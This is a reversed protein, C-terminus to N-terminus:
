ASRGSCRTRKPLYLYSKSAFITFEPCTAAAAAAVVAAAASHTDALRGGYGSISRGTGAELEAVMGSLHLWRGTRPPRWVAGSPSGSFALLSRWLWALRIPSRLYRTIARRFCNSSFRYLRDSVRRRNHLVIYREVRRCRGRSSTQWVRAATSCLHWSRRAPIDTSFGLAHSHEIIQHM